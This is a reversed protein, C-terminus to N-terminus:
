EVRWVRAGGDVARVAFKYGRLRGGNIMRHAEQTTVDPLFFSAGLDMRSWLFKPKPRAGRKAGPKGPPPIPIGTEFQIM